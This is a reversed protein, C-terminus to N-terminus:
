VKALLLQAVQIAIDKRPDTADFGSLDIAYAHAGKAVHLINASDAWYGRDGLSVDEGGPYLNKAGQLATDDNAWRVNVTRGPGSAKDTFTWRCALDGFPQAGALDMGLIMAIDAGAITQCNVLPADGGPGALTALPQSGVPLSGAPADPTGAAPASSCAAFIMAFVLVAGQAPRGLQGTFSQSSIMSMADEKPGQESNTSSVTYTGNPRHEGRSTSAIRADHSAGYAARPGRLM